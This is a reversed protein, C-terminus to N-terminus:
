KVVVQGSMLMPLLWDRLQALQQSELQNNIYLQYIPNVIDQYKQISTKNYPIALDKIVGGAHALSSGRGSVFQLMQDQIRQSQFLQWVFADSINKSPDYIHRIGGSIAGDICTAIRGITTDFSVLVDGPAVKYLKYAESDIWTSCTGLMDRVRYFKICGDNIKGNLYAKAGPETGRNFTLMKNLYEAKSGPETGRQFTLIKDLHEVTWGAPIECKLLDNYVMKGGSARYPRGHEDPFDFQVFWYDYILRALENLKQNIKDNLEIKNDLASLVGAIKHQTKMSPIPLTINRMVSGPIEKFTAGSGYSAINTATSKLLYYLFDSAVKDNPIISKFGQNTCLENKAIAVYGIPARSTFLVSGAPLMKASISSAGALSIDREGRSIYRSNHNSLDYPTIWPVGHKCYNNLDKTSPTSGGVVEGIDSIKYSTYSM